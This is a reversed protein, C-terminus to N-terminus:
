VDALEPVEDALKDNGEDPHIGELLFEELEYAAPVVPLGTPITPSVELM